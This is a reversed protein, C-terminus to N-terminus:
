KTTCCIGCRQACIKRASSECVLYALAEAAPSDTGPLEQLLELLTQEQMERADNEENVAFHPPLGAELPFRRLVEQGFSHITCIRMGGPCSLASAFLRRAATMQKQTPPKDQLNM